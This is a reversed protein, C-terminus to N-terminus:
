KITQLSPSPEVAPSLDKKPSIVTPTPTPSPSPNSNGESGGGGGSSVSLSAGVSTTVSVSESVHFENYSAGFEVSVTATVSVTKSIKATTHLEVETNATVNVEESINATTHLEVEANATVNVEKSINATTHLEVGTNATIPVETEILANAWGIGGQVETPVDVTLNLSWGGGFEVTPTANVNIEAKIPAETQFEVNTTAEVNIPVIIVGENFQVEMSTPVDIKAQIESSSKFEVWVDAEVNDVTEIRAPSKLQSLAEVDTTVGVSADLYVTSPMLVRGVEYGYTPLGSVAQNITGIPTLGSLVGAPTLRKGGVFAPTLGKMLEGAIWGVIPLGVMEIFGRKVDDWNKAEKITNYGKWIGLIGLDATLIDPIADIGKNVANSLLGGVDTLFSRLIGVIWNAFKSIANHITNWIWHVIGLLKDSFWHGVGVILDWLKGFFDKIVDWAKELADKVKDAISKLGEWLAKIVGVLANAIAKLFGYIAQVISTIATIFANFGNKLADWIKSPLDAVDSAIGKIADYIDSLIPIDM